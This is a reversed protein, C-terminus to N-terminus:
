KIKQYKTTGAFLVEKDMDFSYQNGTDTEQLLKDDKNYIASTALSKYEPELAKGDMIRAYKWRRTILYENTSENQLRILLTDHETGFEHSSFPIYTGPIFQQIPDKQFPGVCSVLLVFSLIYIFVLHKMVMNIKYTTQEYIMQWQRLPKAFTMITNGQM